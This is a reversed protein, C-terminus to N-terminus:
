YVQKRRLFGKALKFAICVVKSGPNQTLDLKTVYVARGVKQNPEISQYHIDRGGEGQRTTEYDM